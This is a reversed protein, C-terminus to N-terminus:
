REGAPRRESESLFHKPNSLQAASNGGQPERPTEQEVLDAWDGDTELGTSPLSNGKNDQAVPGLAETRYTKSSGRPSSSPSSRRKRVPSSKSASASRARELLKGIMGFVVINDRKKGPSM